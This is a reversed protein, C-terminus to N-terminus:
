ILLHYHMLPSHYVNIALAFFKARLFGARAFASRLRPHSTAAAFTVPTGVSPLAVPAGSRTTAPGNHHPPHRSVLIFTEITAKVRFSISPTLTMRGAMRRSHYSWSITTSPPERSPVISHHLSRPYSTNSCCRLPM